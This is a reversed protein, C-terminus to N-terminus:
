LLLQRTKALRDQCNRIADLVECIGTIVVYDIVPSFCLTLRACAFVGSCLQVVRQITPSKLELTIFKGPRRSLLPTIPQRTILSTLGTHWRPLIVPM